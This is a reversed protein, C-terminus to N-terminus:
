SWAQDGAKANQCGKKGHTQRTQPSRPSELLMRRKRHTQVISHMILIGSAITVFVTMSSGLKRHAASHVFGPKDEMRLTWSRDAHIQQRWGKDRLWKNSAM